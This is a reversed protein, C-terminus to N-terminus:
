HMHQVTNHIYVGVFVFVCAVFVCVCECVSVVCESAVSCQPLGLVNKNHVYTCMWGDMTKDCVDM